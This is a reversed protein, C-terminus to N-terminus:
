DIRKTSENHRSNKKNWGTTTKTMMQIQRRDDTKDSTTSGLSEQVDEVEDEQMYRLKQKSCFRAINTIVTAGWFSMQGWPLVYGMFATAMMLFFIIVGSIWLYQRPKMFSSFYLGRAIHLYVVFFFISAGNAHLYRIFWGNNVDRMIHEISAFALDINPTYHMALFIGTIIQLGLMIGSLSGFGWLFNLNSPTPYEILHENLYKFLYTKSWRM